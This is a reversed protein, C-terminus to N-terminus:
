EALVEEITPDDSGFYAAKVVASNRIEGPSGHALLKGFDVVFIEECVDLVLSMDHEVLLVGCRRDSVVRRLLGAFEATERRDLGSSPEDLLILNYDGALCRALEVLRRQGTSLNGAQQDRLALLGTIAMAERAAAAVLRSERRTGFTQTLPNAGALGAERGLAVNQAVTLSDCLQVQQFTRGLGLAARRSPGLPNVDRDGLLVRGSAPRVLGSCTNFLTTKGAGNPGILGTIQGVPARLSVSDLAVNGGFRVSVGDVVLQSFLPSKDQGPTSPAPATEALRRPSQARRGFRQDIVARWRAPVGPPQLQLAVVVAGAGFLVNLWDPTASGSIYGPIVATVAAILAYWPVQFPVVALTALLLLSDSSDYHVDGLTAFHVSCGYIIGGLGALMGAVSFVLVRNVTVNLGGTTVALPSESTGKLLRGLRSRQIVVVAVAAVILCVCAVYYFATDGQAFSPRPMARGQALSTFMYSTPYFLQELFLGFGFTALALFIGSLRVAVFAVIAAVPAVLLCGVIVALLWPMGLNTAFQAFAVAGVAAFAAQGLSLLGAGRVLLGLSLVLIAQSIGIMYFGIQQQGFTPVLALFALAVVAGVAQLKAPPRWVPRPIVAATSRTVLYRRPLVLLAILLIIFPLGSPLGGLWSENTAYKTAISALIGIVLGGVYTMPINQFAGIAAAGFAQVVLYVLTAAQIGISPALLVGSLAAFTTGILWSARRTRIASVSHLGVLDPDDVVARMRLGIGTFRFLIYLAAVAVLSIAVITIQAVSVYVGGITVETSAHPLFQNIQLPDTGYKAISLGEVILIIGVTGVVKMATSQLALRRSMLEFVWGMVGGFVLVSIIACYYWAIGNGVNLWYFIYAAAAAIAGQAFNFIGSTKYTLVLGTAALGYVSGTVIGIVVFPLLSSLM